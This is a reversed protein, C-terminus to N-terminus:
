SYCDLLCSLMRAHTRAQRCGDVLWVVGDFWRGGVEDALTIPGVPYGYEKIAEDLKELPVGAQPTQRKTITTNACANPPRQTYPYSPPLLGVLWVIEGGGGGFFGLFCLFNFGCRVEILASTEVLYPGVGGWVCVCM